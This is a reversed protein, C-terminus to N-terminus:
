KGANMSGLILSELQDLSAAHFQAEKLENQNGHGWAVALSILGNDKAALIDEARDGILMAPLSCQGAAISQAIVKSKGRAAMEGDDAAGLIFDFYQLGDLHRLVKEAATSPKMTAIGMPFKGQLKELLPKLGEVWTVEKWAGADYCKRFAATAQEWEEPNQSGLLTPWIQHFTKGIVSDLIPDAPVARGLSELGKQLSKRIGRASDVLTGDLDFLLTM